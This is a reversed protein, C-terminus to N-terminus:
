YVIAIFHKTLIIGFFYKPDMFIGFLITNVKFNSGFNLVYCILPAFHM